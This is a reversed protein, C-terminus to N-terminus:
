PRLMAAEADADTPRYDPDESLCIVDLRPNGAVTGPGERPYIRFTFDGADRAFVVPRGPPVTSVGGGRGTWHWQGNNVGCNGLVQDGALTVTDDPQVLGFSMDGGTPYRVRAWLTWRGRHPLDVQYEVYCPRQGHRDFPGDCCVFEGIAGPDSQKAEDATVMAGVRRRFNAASLWIVAPQRLELVAQALRQQVQAVTLGRFYIVL